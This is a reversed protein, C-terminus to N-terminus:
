DNLSDKNGHHTFKRANPLDSLVCASLASRGVNMDTVDLWEDTEDNYCEVDGITMNGSLLAYM